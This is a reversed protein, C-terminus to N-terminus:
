RPYYSANFGSAIEEPTLDRDNFFINRSSSPNADNVCMRFVGQGVYFVGAVFTVLAYNLIAMVIPWVILCIGNTFRQRAHFSLARRSMAHTQYQTTPNMGSFDVPTPLPEFEIAGHDTSTDVPQLPISLLSQSSHDPDAQPKKKWLM